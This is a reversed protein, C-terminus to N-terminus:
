ALDKNQLNAVELDELFDQMRFFHCLVTAVMHATVNIWIPGVWHARVISGDNNISVRRRKCQCYQAKNGKENGENVV